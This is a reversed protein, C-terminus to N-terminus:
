SRRSGTGPVEDLVKERQRKLRGVYDRVAETRVNLRKGPAPTTKSYTAVPDGAIQVLYTGAPYTQRTGDAQAAPTAPAAQTLPSFTLIMGGALVPALLRAARRGVTPRRGPHQQPM